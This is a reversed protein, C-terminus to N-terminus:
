SPINYAEEKVFVVGILQIIKEKAREREGPIRISTTYFLTKQLAAGNLIHLLGGHISLLRRSM